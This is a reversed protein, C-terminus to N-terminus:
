QRRSPAIAGGGLGITPGGERGNIISTPQCTKMTEREPRKTKRQNIVVLIVRFTIDTVADGAELCVCRCGGGCGGATGVIDVAGAVYDGKFFYVDSRHCPFFVLWAKLSKFNFENLLVVFFRDLM